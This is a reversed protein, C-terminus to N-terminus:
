VYTEGDDSKLVLEGSEVKRRVVIMVQEVAEQVEQAGRPPGLLIEEVDKRLNSSMQALLKNKLERSGMRLGLALDQIKIEQLLEQFTKPTLHILDEFRVMNEKLAQAMEPDKKQIDNLIRQRGKEDLGALMELAQEFGSKKAM